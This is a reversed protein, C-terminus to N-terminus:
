DLVAGLIAQPDIDPTDFQVQDWSVDFSKGEEYHIPFEVGFRMGSGYEFQALTWRNSYLEVTDVLLDLEVLVVASLDLKLKPEVYVKGFADLVLGQAPTWDVQVGTDAAGELGLAGGVELSASADVLPIGVGLGGRVFLRLGAHAPVHLKASGTVHTQDEHDPNYQVGLRTDQLQGPGIGADLDLGGRITAFIGVNQGAVSLGVIPIDVGISFLNKKYTKEPFLDLSSPLAVEGSVVIEGNPLLKLGVEGKLWPAIQISVKGGGYATLTEGPEGTPNGEPDVARNTAGVDVSGKLMGKEYVASGRVDFLGDDYSAAITASVGPINPEATGSAKVKYLGEPTRRAMVEISGSKLGPVNDALGVSGGLMLGEAESYSATISAKQVGPISLEASGSAAVTQTAEDYSIKITGKKVGKLRGEPIGLEGEASLKEDKYAMKISAPDFYNSDFDFGGELSFGKSTGAAGKLYGQGLREIAFDVQGDAMLGGKKGASLVLSADLVKFPKPVKFEDFTFEKFIRVDDGHLEFGIGAGRILPIDTRIVGTAMLGDPLVDFTEIEVPSAYKYRLESLARRVAKKDIYGAYRAGPFRQVDITKAGGTSEWVPHGEPMTFTLSGFAGEEAETDFSKATIVYPELWKKEDSAVSKAPWDFTKAVGGTEGPFVVAEGKKGLKEMGAVKVPKLHEGAELQAQTWYDVGPTLKGKEGKGMARQFVLDYEKKLTAPSKGFQGQTAEIFSELKKDINGKIKSGSSRNTSSDLLEMNELTNAWGQTDWNALQLEVIHDVDYSHGHGDKDWSPLALETAVTPLDGIFYRPQGYQSPAQFVQLKDAPKEAEEGDKQKGKRKSPKKAKEIKEELKEVVTATNNKGVGAKWETRQDPEGRQYAKKQQLPRSSYLAGRHEATKFDPVEITAFTITKATPDLRGTELPLTSPDIPAAEEKEGKAPTEKKDGKKRQIVERQVTGASMPSPTPAAQPSPGSDIAPGPAQQVTHTLEHALLHRGSPTEPQYYGRGFFIDRGRTFAQADLSDAARAARDDTHVRVGSLDRGFRNELPGRLSDPLPQGGGQVADLSSELGPSVEPVRGPLPKTQVTKEEEKKQEEDEKQEEKQEEQPEAAKTKKAEQQKEAAKMLELRQKKEEEEGPPKGKAQEAAEPMRSIGPGALNVASAERGSTVEDAVRDAEREYDDGPENVRLKTQLAQNGPGPPRKRQTAQESKAPRAPSTGKGPAKAPTKM